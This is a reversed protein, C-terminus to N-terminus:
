NGSHFSLLNQEAAFQAAGVVGAQNRYYAPQLSARSTIFPAYESYDASIGGGLVIHDPSLLTELKTLYEQLRQAWAEMTLGNQTKVSPAAFKEATTGRMEIMGLETNPLLRGDSFIASGIGTGLTLFLTVGNKLYSAEGRALEALGAADADNIAFVPINTLTLLERARNWIDNYRVSLNKVQNQRVPSPFGIGVGSYTPLAKCITDIIRYYEELQSPQPIFLTDFHQIVPEREFKVLGVKISTGGIDIGLYDM